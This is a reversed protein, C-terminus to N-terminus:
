SRPRKRTYRDTPEVIEVACPIGGRRMRTRCDTTGSTPYRYYVALGKLERDASKALEAAENVMKQNRRHGALPCYSGTRGIPIRRHVNWAPNQRAVEPCSPDVDFVCDGEWDAPRTMVSWGLLSHAVTRMVADGGRAGGEILTYTRGHAPRVTTLMHRWLAPSHCPKLHRSATVLLITDRATAKEEAERKKQHYRRLHYLVRQTPRKDDRSCLRGLSRHEIGRDSLWQMVSGLEDSHGSMIVEATDWDERRVAADIALRDDLTLAQRVPPIAYPDDMDVDIWLEPPTWEGGRAHSHIDLSGTGRPPDDLELSEYTNAISAHTRAIAPASLPLHIGSLDLYALRIVTETSVGSVGGIQEPTFGRRILAQVRRVSGCLLSRYSNVSIVTQTAGSM